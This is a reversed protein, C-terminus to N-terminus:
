EGAKKLFRERWRVYPRMGVSRKLFDAGRELWSPTGEEVIRELGQLGTTDHMGWRNLVLWDSESTNSGRWAGCGVKYGARAVVNRVRENVDGYPYSYSDVPRSILDELYKKSDETEKCMAEDSLTTMFPHSVSHSGIEMGMESLKRLEAPKLFNPRGLWETIIFFTGRVGAEQLLPAVLDLHSKKGDDFTLCVTKAPLDGRLARDRCEQLTLFTCDRSMMWRIQSHFEDRSLYERVPKGRIEGQHILVGHYLLVQFTM